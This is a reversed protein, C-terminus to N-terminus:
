ASSPMRSKQRDRPSPSTYLLCTGLCISNNHVSLGSSIERNTPISWNISGNTLDIASLLGETDVTFIINNNKESYLYASNGELGSNISKSWVLDASIDVKAIVENDVTQASSSQNADIKVQKHIGKDLHWTLLNSCSSIFFLFVIIFHKAITM